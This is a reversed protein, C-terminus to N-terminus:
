LLKGGIALILVMVAEARCLFFGALDGTIGGFHKYSMRRYDFFCAIGGAAALLGPLPSLAIMALACACITALLATRAIKGQGADAFTQLFGQKRAGNLTVAGFGSMARSLVFSLAAAWGLRNAGLEALAGALLLYYLGCRIVAFAGVHSDKLIELRKEADGYSALADMTDCFGDLHIGGSIFVSIACGGAGRLLPNLALADALRLWIMLVLGIVLGVVPFFCLSYRMNEENWEANPVPIRSYTSLAICLSNLIRM